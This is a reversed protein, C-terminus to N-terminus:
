SLKDLVSNFYAFRSFAYMPYAKSGDQVYYFFSTTRWEDSENFMITNSEKSLVLRGYRDLQTLEDITLAKKNLQELDNVQMNISLFNGNENNRITNVLLPNTIAINNPISAIKINILSDLKQTEGNQYELTVQKSEISCDTHFSIDLMGTYHNGVSGLLTGRGLDGTVKEENYISVSADIVEKETMVKAGILERKLQNITAKDEALFQVTLHFSETKNNGAFSYMMKAPDGYYYLASPFFRISAQEFIKTERGCGIFTLCILALSLMVKKM